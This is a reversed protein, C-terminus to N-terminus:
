ANLLGEKIMIKAKCDECCYLTRQKIPSVKAFIPAMMSAIKTIAKTTAFEKGCEVCAFLKDKALINEKFWFPELEIEDKTIILCDEEPCAIECYGCATCLSPNVRLSFDAENAFLADVNCVGVCSLCLTCNAENVLVRGYHINKGTKVIGLNDNGVIKQLRQSFVERKKLDKQNFNFYSNEIFKVDELATKLEDQTTALIVANTAFKRQYIDNLISIADNTANSITQSFYVIQSNSVQLLTLLSSEDLIDGNIVLPFVDKKLNIELNTIDINSPIIFIHKNKYFSSIEFLSNRSNSSSDIAGSPCVSICEGCSTCDVYSFVLKRNKDDKTIANTPCVKECAACTESLKRENYQCIDSNYTIFKKYSFSNINEKLTKIVEDIGFLNPDYIGARKKYLNEGFWVIQAVNLVVDIENSSVAVKFEGITGNIEKLASLDAKFLEFDDEKLNSTFSEYEEQSSSLILLSKSIQKNQPFDQSLDYTIAAIEYLDLINKIKKSLNDQSNKIYFDIELSTFESNIKKSNSILFSKNKTNEINKTVFIKESIPFDLGLANYYIFEQM